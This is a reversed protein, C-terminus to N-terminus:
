KTLKQTCVAAPRRLGWVSFFDPVGRPPMHSRCADTGRSPLTRSARRYPVTTASPPMSVASSAGVKPFRIAKGSFQLRQHKRQRSIQILQRELTPFKNLNT